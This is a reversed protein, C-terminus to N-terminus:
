VVVAAINSSSKWFTSIWFTNVSRNEPYTKSTAPAMTGRGTGEPPM